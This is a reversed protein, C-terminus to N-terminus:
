FPTHEDCLQLKADTTPRGCRKCGYVGLMNASHACRPCLTSQAESPRGCIPCTPLPKVLFCAAAVDSIIQATSIHAVVSAKAFIM